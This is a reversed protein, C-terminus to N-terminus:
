DAFRLSRYLPLESPWVSAIPLPLQRANLRVSAISLTLEVTPTLLPSHRITIQLPPHSIHFLVISNPTFPPEDIPQSRQLLACYRPVLLDLFRPGADRLASSYLNIISGSRRYLTARSIIPSSEDVESFDVGVDSLVNRHQLLHQQQRRQPKRPLPVIEHLSM